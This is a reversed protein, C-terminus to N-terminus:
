ATISTYTIKLVKLYIAKQNSKEVGIINELFQGKYGILLSKEM